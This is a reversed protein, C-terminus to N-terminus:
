DEILGPNRGFWIFGCKENGSAKWKKQMGDPWYWGPMFLPPRLGQAAASPGAETATATAPQLDTLTAM